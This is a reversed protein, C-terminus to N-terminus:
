HLVVRNCQMDSLVAHRSWSFIRCLVQLALPSRQSHQFRSAICSVLQLLEIDPEEQAPGAADTAADFEEELKACEAESERLEAKARRAERMLQEWQQTTLAGSGTSSAGGAPAAADSNDLRSATAAKAVVPRPVKPAQM